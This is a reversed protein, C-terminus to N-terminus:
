DLVRGKSATFTRNRDSGPTTGTRREGRGRAFMLYSRMHNNLRRGTTGTRRKEPGMPNTVGSRGPSESAWYAVAISFAKVMDFSGETATMTFEGPPEATCDLRM